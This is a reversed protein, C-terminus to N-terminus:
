AVDFVVFQQSMRLYRETFRCRGNDRWNSGYHNLIGFTGDARYDEVVVSHWGRIAGTPVDILAPESSLGFYADLPWAGIVALKRSLARRVGEADDGAISYYGRLGRRDYASHLATASPNRNVNVISFPWDREAAIGFRKVATLMAAFTMGIDQGQYGIAARGWAYTPLAALDPCAIGKALCSLRYAQAASQALCSNSAWQDKPQVAANRVSAEAPLADSSLSSGILEDLHLTDTPLPAHVYGTGRQGQAARILTSLM